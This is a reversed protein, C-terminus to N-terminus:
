IKWKNEKMRPKNGKSKGKRNKPHLRTHLVWCKNRQNGGIECHTFFKNRNDVQTTNNKGKSKERDKKSILLITNLVMRRSVGQM